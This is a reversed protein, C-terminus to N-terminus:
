KPPTGRMTSLSGATRAFAAATRLRPHQARGRDLRAREEVLQAVALEAPEVLLLVGIEVVGAARQVALRLKARMVFQQAAAEEAIRVGIGRRRARAGLDDVVRPSPQQSKEVDVLRRVVDAEGGVGGRRDLEDGLSDTRAALARARRAASLWLETFPMRSYARRAPARPRAVQREVVVAGARHPAAAPRPTAAHRLAARTERATSNRRRAADARARRRVRVGEAEVNQEVDRREHRAVREAKAIDRGVERREREVFEEAIRGADARQDRPAVRQRAQAARPEGASRHQVRRDGGVRMQRRGRWSPNSSPVGSKRPMAASSAPNSRSSSTPIGRRVACTCASVRSKISSSRSAEGRAVARREHADVARAISAVAAAGIANLTQSRSPVGIGYASTSARARRAPTESRPPQKQLGPADSDANPRSGVRM